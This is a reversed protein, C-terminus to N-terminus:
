AWYATILAGCVLVYWGAFSLRLWHAAHRQEMFAHSIVFMKTFTVLLIATVIGKAGLSGVAQDTSFWCSILTLALVVLWAGIIYRVSTVPNRVPSTTM